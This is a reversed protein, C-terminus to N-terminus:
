AKPGVCTLYLDVNAATGNGDTTQTYVTTVSSAAGLYGAATIHGIVCNPTASFFGTIDITCAGTANWTVSQIWNGTQSGVACAGNNTIYASVTVMKGTNPNSMPFPKYTAFCPISLILGFLIYKFM